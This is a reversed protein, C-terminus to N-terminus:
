SRSATSFRAPRTPPLFLRRARKSSMNQAACPMFRISTPLALAGSVAHPPVAFRCRSKDQIFRVFVLCHLRQQKLMRDFLGFNVGVSFYICVLLRNHAIVVFVEKDFLVLVTVGNEAAAHFLRKGDFRRLIRRDLLGSFQVGIGGNM